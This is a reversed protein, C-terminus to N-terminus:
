ITPQSGQKKSVTYRPVALLQIDCGLRIRKLHRLSLIDQKFISERVSYSNLIKETKTQTFRSIDLYYFGKQWKKAHKLSHRSLFGRCKLVTQRLIVQDLKKAILGSISKKYRQMTGFQDLTIDEIATNNMTTNATM